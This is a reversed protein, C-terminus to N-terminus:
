WLTPFWVARISLTAGSVSIHKDGQDKSNYLRTEFAVQLEDSIGLSANAAWYFNRLSTDSTTSQTKGPPLDDFSASNTQIKVETSTNDEVRFGSLGGGLGLGVRRVWYPGSARVRFYDLPEIKLSLDYDLRL